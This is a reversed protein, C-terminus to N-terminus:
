GALFGSKALLFSRLESLQPRKIELAYRHTRLNRPLKLFEQDNWNKTSCQQEQMQGLDPNYGSFFALLKSGVESFFVGIALNLKELRTQKIKRELMMETANAIVGLFTGVRMIIM